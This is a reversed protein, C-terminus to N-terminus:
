ESAAEKLSEMKAELTQLTAYDDANIFSLAYTSLSDYLTRAATLSEEDSITLEKESPLAAIMNSFTVSTISAEYYEDSYVYDIYQTEYLKDNVSVYITDDDAQTYDVMGTIVNGDADTITVYKGVYSEAGLSDVTSQMAQLAEVQTFSALESVYETNSTPELPDQYQMEAVLLQLFMDEDYISSSGSSASSLSSSSASSIQSTNIGSVVSGNSVQATIAM